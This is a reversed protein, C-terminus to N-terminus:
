GIKFCIKSDIEIPEEIFSKLSNPKDNSAHKTYLFHMCMLQWEDWHMSHDHPPQDAVM